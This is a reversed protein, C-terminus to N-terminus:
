LSQHREGKKSSRRKPYSFRKPFKIDRMKNVFLDLEEFELDHEFYERAEDPIDIMGNDEFCIPRGNVDTISSLLSVIADVRPSKNEVLKEILEINNKQAEIKNLLRQAEDIESDTFRNEKLWEIAFENFVYRVMGIVCQVKRDIVLNPMLTKITKYHEAM